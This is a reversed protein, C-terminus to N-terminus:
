DAQEHAEADQNDEGTEELAQQIREALSLLREAAQANVPDAMAKQLPGVAQAAQGIGLLQYGLLLQLDADEPAEKTQGVLRDIQDYLVQDDKYLGRPYLVGKADSPGTLAKRLAEAAQAYRGDAFLAQAYAFPIIRDDPQAEAAQQFLVAAREFQGQEFAVVATEFLTDAQTPPNPPQQDQQKPTLQEEPIGYITKQKDPQDSKTDGRLYNYTYYNYTNGCVEIPVPCCGYWWYPHCGYWHYRIALCDWPWWGDLSVFVYKRHYFPYVFGICWDPGRSYWLGV